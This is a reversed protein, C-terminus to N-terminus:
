SFDTSETCCSCLSCKQPPRIYKRRELEYDLFVLPCYFLCYAALKCEGIEDKDKPMYGSTSFILYVIYIFLCVVM